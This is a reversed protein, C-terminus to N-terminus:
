KKAELTFNHENDGAAIDKQIGSMDNYNPPISGDTSRILVRQLPGIQAQGNYAGNKIEIPAPTEKDPKFQITGDVPKGDYTVKGKVTAMPPGPPTRNCGVILFVILAFLTLFRYM